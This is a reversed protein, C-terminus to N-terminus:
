GTAPERRVRGEWGRLPGSTVKLSQGLLEEGRMELECVGLLPERACGDPTGYKRNIDGM